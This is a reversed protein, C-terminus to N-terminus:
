FNINSFISIYRGSNNHALDPLGSSSSEYVDYKDEDFINFVKIGLKIDSSIDAVINLSSIVVSDTNNIKQNPITNMYKREGYYNINFNLSMFNSISQHYTTKLMHNPYRDGEEKKTIDYNYQYSYNAEFKSVPSLIYTLEIEAGYGDSRGTNNAEKGGTGGIDTFRIDNQIIFYYLNGTATLNDHNNYHLVYELTDITEPKLNKNGKAIPNNKSFLEVITPARFARGYLLKNTFTLSSNIILSLRPNVTTGFDSYDDYRAGLLLTSNKSIGWEDQIYLFKNLRDKEPAFINDENGSRLQFESSPLIPLSDNLNTYDSSNVISGFVSGIGFKLYHNALELHNDLSISLNSEELEPSGKVGTPFISVLEQNEEKMNFYSFIVKSYLEGISKFSYDLNFLNRSNDYRGDKDISQALGYGTGGDLRNQSLFSVNINESSYQITYDVSKYEFSGQNPANSFENVGFYQNYLPDLSTFSDFSSQSDYNVSKGNWDNNEIFIQASLHHEDSINLNKSIYLSESHSKEVTISDNTYEKLSVNIVCSFADAGYLASGNGRIVEIKEVYSTSMNIWSGSLLNGYALTKIPTNNIMFLVEPNYKSNIGRCVYSHSQALSNKVVYVGPLSEVAEYIYKFGNNKIDSNDIVSVVSSTKDMNVSRGSSIESFSELESNFFDDAFSNNLLTVFFLFVVLKM